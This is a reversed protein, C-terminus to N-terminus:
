GSADSQRELLKREVTQLHARMAAAAGSMDRNAIAEVIIDHEAFSHHDSSPKLPTTRLRGWTVARRVANITDFLGSWSATRRQRRLPGTCAITGARM